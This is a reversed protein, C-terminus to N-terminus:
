SYYDVKCGCGDWMKEYTEMRNNVFEEAEKASKFTRIAIENRLTTEQVILHGKFNLIRILDAIITKEEKVIKSQKLIIEFEKKTILKVKKYNFETLIKESTM